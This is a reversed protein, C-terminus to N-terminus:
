IIKMNIQFVFVIKKAKLNSILSFLVTAVSVAVDFYLVNM